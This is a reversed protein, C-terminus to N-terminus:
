DQAHATGALPNFLPGGASHETEGPGNRGRGPNMDIRPVQVYSMADCPTMGLSYRAERFVRSPACLSGLRCQLSVEREQLETLREDLRTAQSKLHFSYFRMCALGMFASIFLAFVLLVLPTKRRQHSVNAGGQM